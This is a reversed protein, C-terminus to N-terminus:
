EEFPLEKVYFGGKHYESYAVMENDGKEVIFEGADKDEEVSDKIEENMPKILEKVKEVAAHRNRFVSILKPSEDIHEGSEYLVFVREAGGVKRQNRSRGRRRTSSRKKPLPM